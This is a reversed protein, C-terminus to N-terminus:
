RAESKGGDAPADFSLNLGEDALLARVQEDRTRLAQDALGKVIERYLTELAISQQIYQARSAAEAQRARNGQFLVVNAVALLLALAGAATLTWFQPGKLM